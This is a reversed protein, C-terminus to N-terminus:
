NSALELARMAYRYTEDRLRPDTRKLEDLQEQTVWICEIGMDAETQPNIERTSSQAAFVFTSHDHHENIKHRNVFMPPVLDFNTSTDMKEWEKPGVLVAKIGVEEWIERLVAENADEGPDIHGGPGNWINYKDHLRLLVSDGNVIFAEAALDLYYNIHAMDYSYVM